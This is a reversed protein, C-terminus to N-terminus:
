QLRVDDKSWYLIKNKLPDLLRRLALNEHLVYNQTADRHLFLEGIVLLIAHIVSRPPRQKTSSWPVLPRNLYTEVHDTAANILHELYDPEVDDVNARIQFLAMEQTVLSSTDTSYEFAPLDGEYLSISGDELMEMIYSIHAVNDLYYVANPLISRLTRNKDDFAFLTNSTLYKQRKNSVPEFSIPEVDGDYVAFRNDDLLQQINEPTCVSLDYVNGNVYARFYSNRDAFYGDGLALYKM